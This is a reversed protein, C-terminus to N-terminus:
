IVDVKENSSLLYEGACFGGPALGFPLRWSVVGKSAQQWSLRWIRFRQLLLCFLQDVSFLPEQHHAGSKVFKIGLLHFPDGVMPTTFVPSHHTADVKLGEKPGIPFSEDGAVKPDIGFGLITLASVIM